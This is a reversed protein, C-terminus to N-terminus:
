RFQLYARVLAIATKCSSTGGWKFYSNRLDGTLSSKRPHAPAETLELWAGQGPDVRFNCYTCHNFCEYTPVLTYAPSYTIANAAFM